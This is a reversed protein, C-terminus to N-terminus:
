WVEAGKTAGLLMAIAALSAAITCAVYGPKERYDHVRVCILVFAGVYWPIAAFFFGIIFLFWGMGLGCCPLRRMRVPRGEVVPIYGQVAQYGQAYYPAAASYAQLPPYVAYSPPPPPPYNRFGPPPAPQPFGVAPQPFEGSASPAGFTGYQQQQQQYYPPASPPFGSASAPAPASHGEDDTGPMEGGM